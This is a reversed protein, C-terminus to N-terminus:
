LSDSTQAKTVPCETTPIISEDRSWDQASYSTRFLVKSNMQCPALCCRLHRQALAHESTQSGTHAHLSSSEEAKLLSQHLEQREPLLTLAPVTYHSADIKMAALHTPNPSVGQLARKTLSFKEETYIYLLLASLAGRHYRLAM